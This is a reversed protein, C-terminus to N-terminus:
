LVVKKELVIAKGGAKSIAEAVAELDHLSGSEWVSRQLKLAEMRRLARCAMQRTACDSRGIDYIILYRKTM